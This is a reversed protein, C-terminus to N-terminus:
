HIEGGLELGIVGLIILILSIIKLANVPEKFWVFGVVAVLATSAGAWIAFALNLNVKKLALTLCGFSVIYCAGMAITPIIRTFGRSLKMATTGGVETLIAIIMLIWEM